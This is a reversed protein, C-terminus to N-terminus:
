GGPADKDAVSSIDRDVTAHQILDSRQRTEIKPGYTVGLEGQRRCQCASITLPAGNTYGTGAPSAAIDTVGVTGRIDYKTPTGAPVGVQDEITLGYALRSPIAGSASVLVSVVGEPTCPLPYWARGGTIARAKNQVPLTHRFELCLDRQVSGIQQRIQDLTEPSSQGDDAM